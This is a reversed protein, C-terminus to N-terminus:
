RRMRWQSRMLERSWKADREDVASKIACRIEDVCLDRDDEMPTLDMIQVINSFAKNSREEATM